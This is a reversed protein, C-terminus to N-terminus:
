SKTQRRAAIKQNLQRIGGVFGRPFYIITVVLLAGFILMRFHGLDQLLEMIIPIAFAGVVPGALTAM